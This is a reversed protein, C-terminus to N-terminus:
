TRREGGLSTLISEFDSPLPAELLLKERTSPHRIEVGQAHLMLRVSQKEASAKPGYLADGLIPHGASALHVRIQHRVGSRIEVALLTASGFRRVPEYQTAAARARLARAQDANRCVQMLDKRRPAHAIPSTVCGSREVAGHVVALYRKLVGQERFQRRLEDYAPATRAAILIGSTATDLRHVLGAESPSRGARVVEPYRAALFNACTGLDGPRIILSPVGSPKNLAIIADDEYAVEVTLDPQPQPARSDDRAGTVLVCDGARVM